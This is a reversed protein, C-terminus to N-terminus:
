VMCAQEVAGEPLSAVLANLTERLAALLKQQRSAFLNGETSVIRDSIAFLGTCLEYLLFLVPLRSAPRARPILNLRYRERESFVIDLVVQDL